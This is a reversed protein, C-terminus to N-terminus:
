LSKAAERNAREARAMACCFSSSRIHDRPPDTEQQEEIATWLAESCEALQEIIAATRGTHPMPLAQMLVRANWMNVECRRALEIQIQMLANECLPAAFALLFVVKIQLTFAVM